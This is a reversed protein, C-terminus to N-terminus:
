FKFALRGRIGKATDDGGVGVYDDSPTWTGYSLTGTVNDALAFVAHADFENGISEGAFSGSALVAAKLTVMDNVAYSGNLIILSTENFNNDGGKWEYVFLPYYDGGSASFGQDSFDENSSFYEVNLDFGVLEDLGLDLIYFSGEADGGYAGYEIGLAVPGAMLAAEAGTYNTKVDNVEDTQNIIVFNLKSFLDIGKFNATLTMADTDEDPDTGNEAVKGIYLGLDVADLGYMVGIHHAAPDAYVAVKKGFSLGYEGIKFSLADNYDWKVYYNDVVDGPRSAGSGDFTGDDSIELDIVATVASQNITLVVELDDDYQQGQVGSNSTNDEADLTYSGSLGVAGETTGEDGVHVAMASGAFSVAFALALLIISLKKM